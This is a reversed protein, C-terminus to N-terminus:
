KCGVSHLLEEIAREEDNTPNVTVSISEAKSMLWAGVIAMIVCGYGFLALLGITALVNTM